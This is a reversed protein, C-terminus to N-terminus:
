APVDDTEFFLVRTAPTACAGSGFQIRAPGNAVEAVAPVGFDRLVAQVSFGLVDRYFAVSRATDAVRLYQSVPAILSSRQPLPLNDATM